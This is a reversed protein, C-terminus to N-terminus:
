WRAGSPSACSTGPPLGTRRRPWCAASSRSAPARLRALGRGAVRPDPDEIACVVRALGAAVIADACPPTEGHHSCPELTVYMTAGRAREGARAIAETEAHPRGGPATWGRAIVEGTAEDAIVAGVSPNPATRGLGRARWGLAIQMM